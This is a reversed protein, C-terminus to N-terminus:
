RERGKCNLDLDVNERMWEAIKPLVKDKMLTQHNTYGYSLMEFYEPAYQLANVSDMRNIFDDANNCDRAECLADYIERVSDSEILWDKRMDFFHQKWREVTEEAKFVNFEQHRGYSFKDMPYDFAYDGTRKFLFRKLSENGRHKFSPWTFSYQGYCSRIFISGTDESIVMNVCVKYPEITFLYQELDKGKYVSSVKWEDKM